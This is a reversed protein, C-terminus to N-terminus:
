WAKLQQYVLVNEIAEAQFYLQAYRARPDGTLMRLRTLYPTWDVNPPEAAQRLVAITRIELATRVVPLAAMASRMSAELIGNKALHDRSAAKLAAAPIIMDALAQHQAYAPDCKAIAAAWTPEAQMAQRAGQMSAGVRMSGTVVTQGHTGIEKWMCAGVGVMADERVLALRPAIGPTATFDRTGEVIGFTRREGVRLAPDSTSAAARALVRAREVPNLREPALIACDTLVAAAAVTCQVAITDEATPRAGLAIPAPSAAPATAPASQAMAVTTACAALAIVALAGRANMVRPM